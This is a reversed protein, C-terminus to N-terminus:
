SLGGKGYQLLRAVTEKLLRREVILDIMGHTLFFESLQFGPPLKQRITEEIVRQGTFGILARPEALIVDGLSAFSAAVGATTPDTLVCLYMLGAENLKAVAASTKAMQMLSLTGEQMRAGGSATIMVVPKQSEVAAEIARTIKEGVVSGMSGGRYHFDMVGLVASVGGIKATGTLVAEKLGTKKEDELCKETYSKGIGLPDGPSLFPDLEKFTMEDATLAIREAATLRFHHKCKPCVKLNEELAKRYVVEKCQPCKEWLDEM